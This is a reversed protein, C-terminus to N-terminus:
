EAVPVPDSSSGAQGHGWERLTALDRASVPKLASGSLVAHLSALCGPVDSVAGAFVRGCLAGGARGAPSSEATSM